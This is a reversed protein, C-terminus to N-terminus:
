RKSFNIGSVIRRVDEKQQVAYERAKLRNEKENLKDKTNMYEVINNVLDSEEQTIKPTISTTLLEYLWDMVQRTKDSALNRREAELKLEDEIADMPVTWDSIVTEDMGADSLVRRFDPRLYCLGNECYDLAITKAKRMYETYLM